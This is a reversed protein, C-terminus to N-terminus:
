IIKGDITLAHNDDKVLCDVDWSHLVVNNAGHLHPHVVHMKMVRWAEQGLIWSRESVGHYEIGIIGLQVHRKLQITDSGVEITTLWSM